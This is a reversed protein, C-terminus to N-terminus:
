QIGNSDALQGELDQLAIINRLNNNSTNVRTQTPWGFKWDQLRHGVILLRIIKLSADYKNRFYQSLFLAIMIMPIKM